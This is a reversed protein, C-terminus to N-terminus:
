YWSLMHHRSFTWFEIIQDVPIRTTTMVSDFIAIGTLSHGCILINWLQTLLPRQIHGLLTTAATNGLKNDVISQNEGYTNRDVCTGTTMQESGFNPTAVTMVSTTMEHGLTETEMIGILHRGTMIDYLLDTDVYHTTTVFNGLLEQADNSLLRNM